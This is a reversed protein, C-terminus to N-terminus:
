FLFVSCLNWVFQSFILYSVIKKLAQLLAFYIYFDSLYVDCFHHAYVSNCEWLPLMLLEQRWPFLWLQHFMSLFLFNVAESFYGLLM